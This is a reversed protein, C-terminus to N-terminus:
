LMCGGSKKVALEAREKEFGMDVLVELDGAMKDRQFDFKTQYFTQTSHFTIKIIFLQSKYPKTTFRIQPKCDFTM